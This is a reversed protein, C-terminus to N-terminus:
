RSGRQDFPVNAKLELSNGNAMKTRRNNSPKREHIFFIYDNYKLSLICNLWTILLLFKYKFKELLDKRGLHVRSM